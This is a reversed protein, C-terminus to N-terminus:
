GQPAILCQMIKTPDDPSNGLILYPLVDYLVHGAGDLLGSPGYYNYSAMNRPDTVAHGMSDFVAECHGFTGM